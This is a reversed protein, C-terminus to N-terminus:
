AVEVAPTETFLMVVPKQGSCKKAYRRLAVRCVDEVEKVPTAAPCAAV